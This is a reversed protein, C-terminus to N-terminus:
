RSTLGHANLLLLTFVGVLVSGFAMATNSDSTETSWVIIAIWVLGGAILALAFHGPAHEKM